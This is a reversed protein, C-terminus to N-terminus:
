VIQKKITRLRGAVSADLCQADYELVFGGIISPDIKVNFEVEKKTKTEVISKIRNITEDGLQRALTLSCVVINKKAKYANIYATAIFSMIDERHKDLVLRFFRELCDVVNGGSAVKLLRLKAESNVVPDALAVKLQPVKEFSSVLVNMASYVENIQNHAEAFKLLAKAYRSSVIGIDM